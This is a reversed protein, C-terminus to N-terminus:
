STVYVSKLLVFRLVKCSEVSSLRMCGAGTDESEGGSEGM